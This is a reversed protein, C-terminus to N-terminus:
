KERIKTEQNKSVFLRWSENAGVLTFDRNITQGYIELLQRTALANFPLNKGTQPVMLVQTHKLIKEAAPHSRTDFTYDYHWWLAGGNAPKASLLLPFPNSFDFTEITEKELGHAKILAVGSNMYNVYERGLKGTWAMGFQGPSSDHKVTDSKIANLSICITAIDKASTILPFALAMLVLGLKLRRTANSSTTSDVFGKTSAIATVVYLPALAAIQPDGIQYNLCYVMWGAGVLFLATATTKLTFPRDKTLKWLLITPIAVFMQHLWIGECKGLLQPSQLGILKCVFESSRSSINQAGSVTTYDALMCAPNVGLVVSFAFFVLCFGSVIAIISFKNNQKSIFFFGLATLAVYFYSLKLFVCLCVITGILTSEIITRANIRHQAGSSTDITNQRDFFLIICLLCVLADGWRNYQMAPSVSFVSYGLPRQVTVCLVMWLQIVILHLVAFRQKATYFLAISNFACVVQSAIAVASATGGIQLGLALLFPVAAGLPCYFNNHPVQGNVVRWGASLLLAVDHEFCSVEKVSACFLASLFFLCVTLVLAILHSNKSTSSFM